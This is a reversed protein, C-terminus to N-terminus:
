CTISWVYGKHLGLAHKGENTVVLVTVLRDPRVYERVRVDSTPGGPCSPRFDAEVVQELVGHLVGPTWAREQDDMRQM